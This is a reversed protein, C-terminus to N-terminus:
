HQDALLLAIEDLISTSTSPSTDNNCVISFALLEGNETVVYGSLSNTYTLSGTKAFVRASALRLRNRLTGDRGAIPLSDRFSGAASSKSMVALLRTTAEPTVLDLRSLGSGDHLAIGQTSIGEHELWQRIVAVGAQDDGRTSMKRPDPDPATAGKEKGLTRLVLESELNLSEKNIARSVEGLTKSTLYALEVERQPDFRENERKGITDTITADGEVIIGRAGLEERLIYAARLAPKHLALRAKFGTSKLPFDGWLRFTNDQLGRTIGITAPKGAAVTLAENKVQVFDNEPELKVRAPDDVKVGPTISLSIENGGISLASVEAGYYWQVDNWLWGDGLPEGFFYGEDGVVNGRVRRVGNRYLEDALRGLSSEGGNASLVLDPAGRGYLTLNGDITGNKDPRSEAYVSTRWRYDPGLVDLAVATTYLKMNSAPIFGNDAERAYLVRGDRLSIVFAGWHASALGSSEIAHDIRNQLLQDAPANSLVFQSPARSALNSDSRAPQEQTPKTAEQARGNIQKKFFVVSVIGLTLALGGLVLLIRRATQSMKMMHCACDEVPSFRPLAAARSYNEPLAM